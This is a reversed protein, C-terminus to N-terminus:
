KKQNRQSSKHAGNYFRNAICSLPLGMTVMLVLIGTLTSVMTFPGQFAKSIPLVLLNMVGWVFLGYAIGLLLVSKIVKRLFPYARFFLITWLFALSYHFLLGLFTFIEGGSFALNGFAGSAIYRLMKIPGNGHLLTIVMAALIDLTGVLLAISTIKKFSPKRNQTDVPKYPNM